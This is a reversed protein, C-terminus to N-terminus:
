LKGVIVVDFEGQQAKDDRRRLSQELLSVM